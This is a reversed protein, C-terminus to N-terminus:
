STGQLLCYTSSRSFIGTVDGVTAVQGSCFIGSNPHTRGICRQLISPSFLTSSGGLNFVPINPTAVTNLGYYSFHFAASSSAVVNRRGERAITIDKEVSVCSSRAEAAILLGAATETDLEPDDVLFDVSDGQAIHVNDPLLLRLFGSEPDGTYSVPIRVDNHAVGVFVKSQKERMEESMYLEKIVDTARRGSLTKVLCVGDEVTVTDVTANGVSISPVVGVSQSKMLNSRLTVAGASGKFLRDNVFFISDGKFGNETSSTDEQVVPYLGGVMSVEDGFRKKLMNLHSSLIREYQLSLRTDLFAFCTVPRPRKADNLQSVDPVMDFTFADTELDPITGLLVQIYGGGPRQHCVAGGMMHLSQPKVSSPTVGNVRCLNFWVVEPADIMGAYDLSVNVYCFNPPRPLAAAAVDFAEAAAIRPRHDASAASAFVVQRVDVAMEKEQQEKEAKQLLEKISEPSCPVESQAVLRHPVACKFTSRSFFRRLM